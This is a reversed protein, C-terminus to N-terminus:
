PSMGRGRRAARGAAGSHLARRPHMSCMGPRRARPHVPRAPDLEIGEGPIWRCGCRCQWRRRRHGRSRRAAINVNAIQAATLGLDARIAPMLPAVAFWAFFCVFFALWTLHFARMPITTFDLLRLRTARLDM